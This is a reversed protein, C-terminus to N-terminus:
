TTVHFLWDKWRGEDTSKIDKITIYDSLMPSKETHLRYHFCELQTIQRYSHGLEYGPFVPDDSSGYTNPNMHVASEFRKNKSYTKQAFVLVFTVTKLNFLILRNHTINAKTSSGNRIPLSIWIEKVTQLIVHLDSHKVVVRQLSNVQKLSVRVVDSADNDVGCLRVDEGATTPFQRWM